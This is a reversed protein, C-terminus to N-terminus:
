VELRIEVRDHNGAAHGIALQEVAGAASRRYGVLLHHLQARADAGMVRVTRHAREGDHDRGLVRVAESAQEARQRRSIPRDLDEAVATSRPAPELRLFLMDSVQVMSSPRRVTSTTASPSTVSASAVANKSAM